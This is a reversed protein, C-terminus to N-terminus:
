RAYLRRLGIAFTAAGGDSHGLGPHMETVLSLDTVKRSALIGFFEAM